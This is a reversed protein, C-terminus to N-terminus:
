IINRWIKLPPLVEKKAMGSVFPNGKVYYRLPALTWDGKNPIGIRPATIIENPIKSKEQNIYLAGENIMRGDLEKTIAMAKTLKGPGNSILIGTQQRNAAMQEIGEIPEIARILVAQPNNPEKTTINLMHHTHMTYVYITGGIKYMSQLRPTNKGAYSHCAMDEIGLYAETEVIFGSYICTNTKHVLLKGLLNQAIEKTTPHIFDM